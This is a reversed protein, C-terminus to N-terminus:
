RALRANKAVIQPWKQAAGRMFFDPSQGRAGFERALAYDATWGGFLTDGLSMEAIKLVYSDAGSLATGGNLSTQLSNRLFGTDVRMRGGQAVPLQADAFVEQASQKVVAEIKRLNRSNIRKVQATFTEAM